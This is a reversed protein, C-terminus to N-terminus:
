PELRPIDKLPFNSSPEAGSWLQEDLLELSRFSAALRLSGM